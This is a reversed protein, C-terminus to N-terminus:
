GRRPGRGRGRSAINSPVTLTVESDFTLVTINRTPGDFPPLDGSPAATVVGAFGCFRKLAPQATYLAMVAEIPLKESTGDLAEQGYAVTNDNAQPSPFGFFVRISLSIESLM